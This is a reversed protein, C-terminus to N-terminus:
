SKVFPGALKEEKQGVGVEVTQDICSVVSQLVQQAGAKGRHEEAVM